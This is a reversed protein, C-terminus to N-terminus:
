RGGPWRPLATIPAPLMTRAPRFGIDSNRYTPVNFNRNASRVFSAQYGFSGGRLVRSEQRDITLADIEEDEAPKGKSQNQPYARYPEQCWAFVNGQLDFFGLDNPKRSAVPWTKEQSNKLYWAYQPLLTETEGYFRSTSAGARIAYELEAETPVRYGSLSLYSAKLKTVQGKADTEYCEALGEKRSLWNCYAAAMYWSVYNAPCNLTPSFREEREDKHQPALQLYQEWTVSHAAIAFSRNIRRQHQPEGDYRGAETAPSGMLFQVPGPIVVMTQGQTNVFWQPPTKDKEKALLHQIDGLRKERQEKDKAWAENTQQVWKHQQWQRLLWEAAAHLGPDAETRYIHQLKPLLAQRTAPSLEKEGYEGLSLLLARRITIDPEEDLRQIIPGPDAGFSSLRHVLYSRV